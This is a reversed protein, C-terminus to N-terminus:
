SGIGQGATACTLAHSEAFLKAADLGLSQVSLVMGHDSIIFLPRSALPVFVHTIYIKTGFLHVVGPRYIRWDASM